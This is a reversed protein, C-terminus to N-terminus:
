SSRLLWTRAAQSPAAQLGSLAEQEWRELDGDKIGERRLFVGQELEPLRRAELVLRLKESASREDTPVPVPPTNKSKM